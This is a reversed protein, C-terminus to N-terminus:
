ESEKNSNLSNITEFIAFLVGLLIALAIALGLIVLCGIDQNKM